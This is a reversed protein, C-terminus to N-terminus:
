VEDGEYQSQDAVGEHQVDYRAVGGNTVAGNAVVVFESCILVKSFLSGPELVSRIIISFTFSIRATFDFVVVFM